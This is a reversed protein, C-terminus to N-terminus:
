KQQKRFTMHIKDSKSEEERHWPNTELIYNSEQDYESVKQSGLRYFSVFSLGFFATLSEM